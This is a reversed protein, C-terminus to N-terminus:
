VIEARGPVGEGRHQWVGRHRVMERPVGGEKHNAGLIMFMGKWGSRLIKSEAAEYDGWIDMSSKIEVLIEKQRSGEFTLIFDPIYGALDIPEYEWVFGVEDFLYAWQAEIRSRFRIGRPGITPIGM